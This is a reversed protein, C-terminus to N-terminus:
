LKILTATKLSLLYKEELKIKFAKEIALSYIEIQKEYRKILRKEDKVSTYKYDILINKKGICFLDCIGQVLIENTNDSIGLERLTTKMLFPKEKIINGNPLIDKILLINKYLLNLDLLQFYGDSLSQQLFEKFNVLDDFTKIKDFDIIKLAEHYANGQMIAKERNTTLDNENLIFNESNDEVDKEFLSSVSNKYEQFCYEQDVYKFNLYNSVEKQHKILIPENVCNKQTDKKEKVVDDILTFECNYTNIKEQSFIQEKFNKGMNSFVIDFYTKCAFVDDENLINKEDASGILVLNNQARTCAVYFIMIEDIFEEKKKFLKNALFIPSPIKINEQFDYVYSGMGFNKTINIANRNPKGLSEGCAGLIVIPFELGKTAHITTITISNSSSDNLSGESKINTLYDLLGQLNFDYNGTKIIKFFENLNCIKINAYSLNNIYFNYNYENFIKQLSETLGITQCYFSFDDIFKFFKDIKKDKNKLNMVIDYISNKSDQIRYNCVEDLSFGGFWSTMVSVLSIDDNLNIALKILSMLTQIEGDDLLSHKIDALINFGMSQMKRVCEIMIQNRERFLIAIDNPQVKRMKELKADYIDSELFQEVRNIIDFVENEYEKSFKIKDNKVSYVGRKEEKEEKNPLVVDIMVPTFKSEKFNKLGKLMSTKKYDIGVNKETIVNEFVKNVFQLIKDNSRFNGTLFLSQSDEKTNFDDIDKKMIEMSANRFGYIGQKPDGVAIFKGGDAIPKIINEQLSNTDQYEDIFIYDYKKQLDEKVKKNQLLQYAFKELDAFDLGKNIRKLNNYENVFDNYFGILAKSISCNKIKNKLNDNIFSYNEVIKKIKKAKEKALRLDEKEPINDIKSKPIDLLKYDNLLKCSLYFDSNFCNTFDQLNRKLDKLKPTLQDDNIFNILNILESKLVNLENKIFEFSKKLFLDNNNLFENILNNSNCSCNFYDNIYMIADFMRSKNKKFAFYLEEFLADDKQTYNEFVKTFSLYKLNQSVKSDLVSFNNDVDIYAINRKVLRECFSDITTIDSIYIDDLQKLLFDNPKKELIAKTLRIKMENAAAKTFTLVLMKSIPVSKKCLLNVLYEVVVFTKGSGASASVILNKKDNNLINKQEETLKQKMM